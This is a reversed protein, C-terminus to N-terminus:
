LRSPRETIVHESLDQRNWRTPIWRYAVSSGWMSRTIMDYVGGTMMENWTLVRGVMNDVFYAEPGNRLILATHTDGSPLHEGWIIAQNDWGIGKSVLSRSLLLAYDECDGHYFGDQKNPINWWEAHGYQDMDSVYKFEADLEDKAANVIELFEDRPLEKTTKDAVNCIMDGPFELCYGYGGILAPVTPPLDRPAHVNDSILNGELSSCAGLVLLSLAALASKINLSKM